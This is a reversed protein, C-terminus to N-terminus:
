PRRQVKQYPPINWRGRHRTRPSSSPCTHRPDPVICDEWRIIRGRRTVANCRYYDTYGGVTLYPFKPKNNTMIASLQGYVWEILNVMDTGGLGDPVRVNEGTYCSLFGVENHYKRDNSPTMREGLATIFDYYIPQYQAQAGVLMRPHKLVSSYGSRRQFDFMFESAAGHGIFYVERFRFRDLYPSRRLVITAKEITPVAWVLRDGGRSHRFSHARRRYLQSGTMTTGEITRDDNVTRFVLVGPDPVAAGQGATNAMKLPRRKKV